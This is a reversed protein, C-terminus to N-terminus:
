VDAAFWGRKYEHAVIGRYGDAVGMSLVKRTDCAASIDQDDTDPSRGADCGIHHFGTRNHEVRADIGDIAFHDPVYIELVHFIHGRKERRDRSAESRQSVQHQDPM